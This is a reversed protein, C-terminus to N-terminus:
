EVTVVGDCWPQNENCGDYWWIEGDWCVTDPDYKNCYDSACPPVGADAETAEAPSWTLALLLLALSALGLSVLRFM